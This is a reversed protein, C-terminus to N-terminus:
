KSCLLFIKRRKPITPDDIIKMVQFKAKQFTKGALNLQETNKPYFQFVFRGEPKLVRYIELGMKRVKELIVRPKFGHFVWQLTSVSIVFDFFESKFPIEQTFDAKYVDLGKRSAISLMPEAIDIGKVEFGSEIVAQMSHGTGCGIDLFMAPPRVELIELARLTMDRQIKQMRSNQDYQKAREATYYIEPLVHDEPLLAM